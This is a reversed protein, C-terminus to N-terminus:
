ITQFLKFSTDLLSVSHCVVPNRKYAEAVISDDEAKKRYIKNLGLGSRKNELSLYILVEIGLAINVKLVSSKSQLLSLYYM